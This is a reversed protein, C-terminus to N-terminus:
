AVSESWLKWPGRWGWAIVYRAPNLYAIQTPWQVAIDDRGAVFM